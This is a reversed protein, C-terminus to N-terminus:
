KILYVILAVGGLAIIPLNFAFGSWLQTQFDSDGRRSKVRRRGGKSARGFIGRARSGEFYAAAQDYEDAALDVVMTAKELKDQLTDRTWKEPDHKQIKDLHEAFCTRCQELHGLEERMEYIERDILTVGTSLKETLEVQQSLFSRKRSTLEELERKKRELVERESQIRELEQQATKIKDDYDDHRGGGRSIEMQGSRVNIPHKYEHPSTM